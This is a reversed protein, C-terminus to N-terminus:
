ERPTVCAGVDDVEERPQLVDRAVRELPLLDQGVYGQELPEDGALHRLVGLHEPLLPLPLARVEDLGVETLDASVLGAAVEM